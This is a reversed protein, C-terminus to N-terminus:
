TTLLKKQKDFSLLDDLPSKVNKLYEASTHLYIQTTELRKHGLLESIHKIDFGNELLHTAFSHRLAHVYVNKDIKALEASHKIIKQASRISLHSNRYGSFLFQEGDKETFNEKVRIILNEPLVTKRDKRGKGQRVFILRNEFDFDKLKLKVVESVRLGSGYALEILLRHKPNKTIEIMRKIEEKTLVTPIKRERRPYRIGFFFKRGLINQYYFKLAATVHALTNNSLGRQKLNSLFSNIDNRDVFKAIKGAFELFKQNYYLYSKITRTSVGRSELEKKLSSLDYEM